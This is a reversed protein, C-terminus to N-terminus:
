ASRTHSAPLDLPLRVSFRTGARPASQFTIEGGHQEVLRAVISLGLGTGAAKTTFFPDFLRARHGAPIGPGNDTVSLVAVKAPRGRVMAQERQLTLTITGPHGAFSEQANRVLNLVVQRIQDADIRASVPMAAEVALTIQGAALDQELFAALGRLWASLEVDNFKPDAPRAYGLVDRVIRELRDLEQSIAQVDEKADPSSVGRRLTYLRAKVATLPNRIEHAVGAALTGLAALKERQALLAESEFLRARLPRVVDRYLLAVVVGIAVILGTLCIFVLNRMRQVAALSETLLERLDADHVAAFDDAMSQLRNASDDFMVITDRDLREAFEGTRAAVGDLKLFYSRVEASLQQLIQREERSRAAARRASLWDSLRQRRQQIVAASDDASETGVRLLAGHLDDVAGRFQRALLAAELEIDALRSLTHNADRAAFFALALCAAVALILLALLAAFRRYFVQTPSRM